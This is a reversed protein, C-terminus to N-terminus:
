TKVRLPSISCDTFHNILSATSNATSFKGGLHSSPSKSAFTSRCSERADRILISMKESQISSRLLIKLWSRVMNRDTSTTPENHPSFGYSMKVYQIIQFCLLCIGQLTIKPFDIKVSNVKSTKVPSYFGDKSNNSWNCTVACRTTFNNANRM